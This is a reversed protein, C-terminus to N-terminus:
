LSLVSKLVRLLKAKPDDIMSQSRWVVFRDPRVLVCGDEAIERRRAWDFYVDEYDQGWGISYANIDIGIEKGVNNASEKWASGGIGTFLCFAGHGALDIMLISYNNNLFNM